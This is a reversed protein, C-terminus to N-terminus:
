IGFIQKVKDQFEMQQHLRKLTKETALLNKHAEEASCVRDTKISFGTIWAIAGEEGQLHVEVDGETKTVKRESKLSELLALVVSLPMGSKKLAQITEPTIGSMIVSSDPGILRSKKKFILKLSISNPLWVLGM